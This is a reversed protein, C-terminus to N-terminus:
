ARWRSSRTNGLTSRIRRSCPTVRGEHAHPVPLLIIPNSPDELRTRGFLTLTAETRPAPDDERPVGRRMRSEIAPDYDPDALADRYGRAAIRLAEPPFASAGGYADLHPHSLVLYRIPVTTRARLAALFDRAAEPSPQADVVLLGDRREFVLGNVHRAGSTPRFLLVGPAPEEVRFADPSGPVFRAATTWAGSSSPGAATPDPQALIGGGVATAAFWLWVVAAGTARAVSWGDRDNM